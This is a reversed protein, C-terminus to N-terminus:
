SKDISTIGNCKPFRSCGYFSKGTHIGTKATRLVSKAGCKPCIIGTDNEQCQEINDRADGEEIYGAVDFDLPVGM